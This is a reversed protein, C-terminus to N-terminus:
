FGGNGVDDNRMKKLESLTRIPPTSDDTLKIEFQSGKEQQELLMKQLLEKEYTLQKVAQDDNRKKKIEELYAEKLAEEINKGTHEALELVKIAFDIKTDTRKEYFERIKKVQTEILEEREVHFRTNKDIEQQLKLETEKLRVREELLKMEYLERMERLDMAYQIAQNLDDIKRIKPIPEGIKRVKRYSPDHELNSIEDLTLFFYQDKEDMIGHSVHEKQYERREELAKLIVDIVEILEESLGHKFQLEDISEQLDKILQEKDEGEEGNEDIVHIISEKDIHSLANGLTLEDLQARLPLYEIMYQDYKKIFVEKEEDQVLSVLKMEPYKIWADRDVSDFYENKEFETFYELHKREMLYELQIINIKDVLVANKDDFELSNYFLQAITLSPMLNFFRFLYYKVKNGFTDKLIPIKFQLRPPLIADKVYYHPYFEFRLIGWNETRWKRERMQEFHQISYYPMFGKLKDRINLQYYNMLEPQRAKECSVLRGLRMDGYSKYKNTFIIPRKQYTYLKFSLVTFFTCGIMTFSILLAGQFGLRAVLFNFIEFVNFTIPFTATENATTTQNTPEKDKEEDKKSSGGSSSEDTTEEEQEETVNDELNFISTIEAATLTTNYVRFDDIKGHFFGESSHGGIAIIQSYDQFNGDTGHAGTIKLDNNIYVQVNTEDFLVVLHYWTDKNLTKNVEILKGADNNELGRCVVEPKNTTGNLRLLFKNYGIGEGLNKQMFIPKYGSAISDNDVNLWLSLTFKPSVLVNDSLEIYSTSDFDACRGVKGSPDAQAGHAKGHVNGLNDVVENPEGDWNLSEFKYHVFLENGATASGPGSGSDARTDARALLPITLFIIGIFMFLAVKM